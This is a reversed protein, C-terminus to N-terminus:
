GPHESVLCATESKVRSKSINGSGVLKQQDLDKQIPEIIQEYFDQHNEYFSMFDSEAAFKELSEAFEDLIDDGRARNIIYDSYSYIKELNPPYSFHLIFNPPADYTFGRDTLGQALRVADHNKFPSFYEKIDDGYEYPVDPPGRTDMWTTMSLVVSLLEINPHVMISVSRTSSVEGPTTNIILLAVLIICIKKMKEGIYIPYLINLNKSHLSQSVEQFPMLTYYYLNKIAKCYFDGGEILSSHLYANIKCGGGCFDRWECEKCHVSCNM